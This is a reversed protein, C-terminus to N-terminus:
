KLVVISAAYKDANDSFVETKEGFIKYCKPNAM